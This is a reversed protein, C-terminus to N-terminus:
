IEFWFISGKGPESMVGFELKHMLLINKVISLGLGSSSKDRSHYGEARYYRDWILPLEENRIGIGHDEVEIRVRGDPRDSQRIEVKRSEGSYNIANSVFNYLVRTIKDRDGRVVRDGPCTFEIKFGDRETIDSFRRITESVAETISFESIDLKMDANNYKSYELMDNVLASMKETEDIIVGLNEENSEGPIDRMMEAYGRIMTLPTRLDHSVNAILDKQMTDLKSIQYTARNLTNSLAITDSCKGGDFKVNYDGSEMKEAEDSMNRITKALMTSTPVAILVAAAILIVTLIVLIIRIASVTSSLPLLETNFIFFYDIDGSPIISCLIYNEGEEDTGRTGFVASISIEEHHRGGEATTKRYLSNLVRDNTMNHIYCFSNVHQSCLVSGTKRGETFGIRYASICVGYKKSAVSTVANINEESLDGSVNSEVYQGCSSIESAKVTRYIGDILFTHFVWLLAVTLAAFALFAILLKGRLSIYKRNKRNM